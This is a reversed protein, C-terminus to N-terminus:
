PPPRPQSVGETSSDAGIEVGIGGAPTVRGYKGVTQTQVRIILYDKTGAGGWLLGASWLVAISILALLIAIPKRPRMNWTMKTGM